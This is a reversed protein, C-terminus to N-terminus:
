EYDYQIVYILPYGTLINKCFLITILFQSSMLSLSINPYTHTQNDFGCNPPKNDNNKGGKGASGTNHTLPNIKTHSEITDSIKINTM